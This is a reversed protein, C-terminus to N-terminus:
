WQQWPASKAAGVRLTTGDEEIFANAYTKRGQKPWM